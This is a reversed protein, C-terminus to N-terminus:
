GLVPLVGGTMATLWGGLALYPGFPIAQGAELRRTILGVLAVLLAALSALLATTILGEPGTWAGIMAFLKFDGFGMGDRGRLRGYGANILWLASYGAAASLIALAPSTLAAPTLSLLLGLWLGSLTLSDPLLQTEFDIVALALLWWTFILLGAASATVGFQLVVAVTVAAGLLETIPYRASIAAHCDRCHGKLRLYSLIPVNDAIRIPHHCAPCRSGPWAIGPPRVGSDAPPTDPAQAWDYALRAPIRSAVVNLFSGVIAGFLCASLILTM